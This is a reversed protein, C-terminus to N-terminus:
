SLALTPLTLTAPMQIEGTQSRSAGCVHVLHRYWLRRRACGLCRPYCVFFEGELRLHANLGVQKFVRVKGGFLQRNNLIFDRYAETRVTDKVFFYFSPPSPTPLQLSPAERASCPCVKLMEEHIGYHSYGSFYGENSVDSPRCSSFEHQM